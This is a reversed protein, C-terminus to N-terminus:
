MKGGKPPLIGLGTWDEEAEGMLSALVTALRDSNM